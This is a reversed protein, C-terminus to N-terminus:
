DSFLLFLGTLTYGVMLVLMPLQGGLAHRRPLLRVARDHAAIVGFVHGIVVFVVKSVALFTPHNYIEYVNAEDLFLTLTWGRSLPDGLQQLTQLGVSVFYSLYHAVIYGVVIPVVSHALQNPLRLRDLDGIGGTLVSAFAFTVVVVACFGLLVGTNLLTQHDSYNAAFRLYRFSEKFSDFGTSGFLVGVVGVLGPQVPVSDLNELPNRVVLGGDDRRAFPSLRAVLSAYVEFPDARAFFDEGFLMAGLLLVIGVAAFWLRVWGLDTSIQADVLELWVFAFLLVAAPWLGLRQPYTFLGERRDLGAVRCLGRHLWRLPNCLRYVHGFLLSVPV